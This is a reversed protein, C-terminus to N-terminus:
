CPRRRRGTRFPLWAGMMPTGEGRGHGFGGGADLAAADDPPEGGAAADEGHEVADIEADVGAVEDGDEAGRAAALGGEEAQEGAEVAGRLAGDADVALGELVEVLVGEGEKPAALDAEDELGELQQAVEGRPLVDEEGELEVADGVGSRAGVLQQAADAEALPTM